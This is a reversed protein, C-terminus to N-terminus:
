LYMIKIVQKPRKKNPEKSSTAVETCNSKIGKVDHKYLSKLHQKYSYSPQAVIAEELANDMDDSMGNFCVNWKHLQLSLNVLVLDKLHKEEDPNRKNALFDEILNTRPKYRTVDDCTQSLVRIAFKVLWAM